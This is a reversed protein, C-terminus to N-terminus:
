EVNPAVRREIHRAEGRDNHLWVDMQQYAIKINSERFRQEVSRNIADTVRLRHGLENVYVRVEFELADKGYNMCFVEPEPDDLVLPDARVVSFLLDRAQELPTGHAVGFQLVVRTVNDSLSWNILRDTVFTKNPIIIEKHDFDIVTTARMRIRNVKGHLDNLTITDGIRIPREFLIILGSIFNAFVEQLGFGLGLGLATLMWQVKGWSLGLMALVTLLGAGAIVYSVLSSIAYASGTKLRMRSLVMVELLGPLNRALTVTIPITLMVILLSAVTVHMSHGAPDDSSVEWITITNLYSLVGLLDAWVLYLILTFIGLLILKSLRLSQGNVQEMDLPPEELAELTAENSDGLQQRHLARRRDVARRYALRRAAVALGRVIMAEVLIWIGMIYLTTIVRTSLRIATYEYGYVILGALVLPVMAIITGLVLRFSHAGLHPVHSYVLRLLILSMPLLCGLLILLATPQDALPIDFGRILRVVFVVPMVTLGLWVIARRLQDVYREPWHFHRMAVGDKVLLRRAWAFYAWALSVDLLAKGLMIGGSSGTLRIGVGISALILPGKVALVLEMLVAVPTHFQSDRKLKGVEEQLRQLARRIRPRFISLVTVLMVMPLVAIVWPSPTTFLSSLTDRWSPDKIEKVWQSPLQRFWDLGLPRSSAVWFLQEEITGKVGQTTEMLQQQNLQVDILVSLLAGYEHDLQNLLDRQSEYLPLLVGRVTGAHAEVQSASGQESSPALLHDVFREVDSLAEREEAVNFQRLRVDAIEDTLKLRSDVKPLAQRQQRLIRSLLASGRMAEIQRTLNGQVQQAADLESRIRIGDGVMTNVRETTDLLAESLFQNRAFAQRVRVDNSYPGSTEGSVDDITQQSHERRKQDVQEQLWSLLCQQAELQRSTMAREQQAVDRLPTNDALEERHLEAEAENAKIQTQLAIREQPLLANPTDDSGQLTNRLRQTDRQLQGLAEQAREPLVQASAIRQNVEGLRDQLRKMVDLQESLQAQIESLAMGEFVARNAIYNPDIKEQQVRYRKQLAPVEAMRQALQTQQHQAATLRELAKLTASIAQRERQVTPDTDVESRSALQQELEARTPLASPQAHVTSVVTLWMLAVMIRKSIKGSM